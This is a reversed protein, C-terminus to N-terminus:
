NILQLIHIYQILNIYLSLGSFALFLYSQYILNSSLNQTHTHTHMYEVLYWSPVFLFYYKLVVPLSSIFM